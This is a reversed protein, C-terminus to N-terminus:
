HWIDRALPVHQPYTLYHRFHTAFWGQTDANYRNAAFDYDSKAVYVRNLAGAVEADRNLPDTFTQVQHLVTQQRGLATYVGEQAFTVANFEGRLEGDTMIFAMVAMFVMVAFITSSVKIVRRVTARHRERRVAKAAEEQERETLVERIRIGPVGLAEVRDELEAVTVRNGDAAERDIAANVIKTAESEPLTRQDM